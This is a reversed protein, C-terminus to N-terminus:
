VKKCRIWDLMSTNQQSKTYLCDAIKCKNNIGWLISDLGKNYVYITPFKTSSLKESGDDTILVFIMQNQVIYRYM